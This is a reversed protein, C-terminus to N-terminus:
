SHRTYIAIIILMVFMFKLAKLLADLLKEEFKDLILWDAEKPLCKNNHPPHDEKRLVLM